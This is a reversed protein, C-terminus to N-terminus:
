PRADIRRMCVDIVQSWRRLPAPRAVSGSLKDSELTSWGRLGVDVGIFCDGDGLVAEAVRWARGHVVFPGHAFLGLGITQPPVTVKATREVVVLQHLVHLTRM